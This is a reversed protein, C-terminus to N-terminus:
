ALPASDEIRWESDQKVYLTQSPLAFSIGEADFREKVALHMQELGDQYERADTSNWWHVVQINLASDTFKNFNVLCDFTKPHDKYAEKLIQLARKVKATPTDYTIGINIVTKINPRKAINIITANGVTKNPITALHGDLNRVRTSRFGITEVTGEVSDLKINDGVHFPKDVFVAVAGFLNSLTDQAALGLALGGISLSAILSTIDLGLNQLTVLAAVIVVFVKLSKRIIPFLQKNFQEDEPSAARRYWYGLLLDIVKLTVYTLSCAVIINLGKSLLAEAWAPWSFIDLGVHLFIVFSVIKIPGNLVSLLLDDLQTRTKAALKKLWIRTLFDLFKSIYFALFIYILSALYKWLPESFIRTENLWTVRNLGFTLYDQKLGSLPNASSVNTNSQGIAPANTNATQASAWVSWLLLAILAVIYAHFIREFKLKM